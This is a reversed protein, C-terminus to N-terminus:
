GVYQARDGGIPRSYAVMINHHVANAAVVGPPPNLSLSTFYLGENTIHFYYFLNVKSM